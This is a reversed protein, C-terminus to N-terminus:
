QLRMTLGAKAAAQKIEPISMRDYHLADAIAIGDAGNAAAEIFHEAVAFGGSALVPCSVSESIARVLEIDFGTRTGERDISTVLIEGAGRDCATKAWSVAELGSRERGNETYCEYRGDPQLKAEISVVVGQCGISDSIESILGPWRIAGTNIAVKDAGANFLARADEVSRVGGGVTVPIFVDDTTRELLEIIQSRGYLSAVIDMYIIEDAGENAYKVARAHPDGIKRLGELHVGKVLNPAKIDMRAILRTVVM